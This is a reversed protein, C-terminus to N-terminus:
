GNNSILYFIAFADIVDTKFFNNLNILNCQMGDCQIKVIKKENTPPHLTNSYVYKM